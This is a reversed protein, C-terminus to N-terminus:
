KSLLEKTLLNLFVPNVLISCASSRGPHKKLREWAKKKHDMPDRGPEIAPLYQESARLCFRRSAVIREYDVEKRPEYRPKAAVGLGGSGEM